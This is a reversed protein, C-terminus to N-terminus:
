SLILFKYHPSFPIRYTPSLLFYLPPVSLDQGVGCVSAGGVHLSWSHAQTTLSPEWTGSHLRVRGLSSSLYLPHESFLCFIPKLLAVSAM